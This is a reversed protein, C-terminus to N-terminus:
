GGRGPPASPTCFARRGAPPAPPISSSPRTTPRPRPSTPRRTGARLGAIEAPGIVPAGPAAPLALGPDPCILAPALDALIAAVEPATLQASLPVPIAGLANAAFFLIPFDASNGLRLAGPPRRPRDRAGRARRRHARVAEAIEAYTRREGGRAPPPSCRSRSRTRPACRRRRPHAGGHQVAGPLARLPRRRLPIRGDHRRCRRLPSESAPRVASGARPAVALSM